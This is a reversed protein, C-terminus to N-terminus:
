RLTQPMKKQIEKKKKQVVSREVWICLFIYIFEFAAYEGSIFVAIQSSVKRVHSPFGAISPHIQIPKDYSDM